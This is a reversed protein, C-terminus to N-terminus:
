RGPRARPSCVSSSGACRSPASSAPRTPSSRTQRNESNPGRYSRMDLMFLDLLPGRPILRYVREREVPNPRLPTFEFMARKARAALLAVRKETYRADELIREHFWNNTVEHDDWQVYQAVEANFRRVHADMCTTATTAASSELTEAM